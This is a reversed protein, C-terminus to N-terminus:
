TPQQTLGFSVALVVAAVNIWYYAADFGAVGTTVSLWVAMALSQGVGLLFAAIILTTAIMFDLIGHQNPTIDRLSM